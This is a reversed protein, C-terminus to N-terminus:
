ANSNKENRNSTSEKWIGKFEPHKQFMKKFGKSVMLARINYDLDLNNGRLSSQIVLYEKVLKSLM